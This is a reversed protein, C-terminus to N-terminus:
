NLKLLQYESEIGWGGKYLKITCGIKEIKKKVTSKLQSLAKRKTDKSLENLTHKEMDGLKRILEAEKGVLKCLKIIGKIFKEKQKKTFKQKDDLEMTKQAKVEYTKRIKKLNDLDVKKFMYVVGQAYETVTGNFNEFCRKDQLRSLFSYLLDRNEFNFDYYRIHM